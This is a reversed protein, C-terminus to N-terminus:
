PPQCYFAFAPPPPAAPPDVPGALTAFNALALAVLAALPRLTGWPPRASMEAFDRHWNFPQRYQSGADDNM